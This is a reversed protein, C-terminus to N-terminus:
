LPQAPSGELSIREEQFPPLQHAQGPKPVLRGTPGGELELDLETMLGASPVDSTMGTWLLVELSRGPLAISCIIKSNVRFASLEPFLLELLM